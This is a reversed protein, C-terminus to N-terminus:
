AGTKPNPKQGASTNGGSQGAQKTNTYAISVNSVGGQDLKGNVAYQTGPVDSTGDHLVTSVTYGEQAAQVVSYVIGKDQTLSGALKLSQGHALTVALRGEADPRVLGNKGGEVTGNGSYSVTGTYPAGSQDKLQVTYRFALNRDAGSGAVQNSVTISGLEEDRANLVIDATFDQYNTSATKVQFRGVEGTKGAPISNVRIVLMDNLTQYSQVVHDPDNLTVTYEAAGLYYHEPLAEYLQTLDFTYTKPLENAVTLTGNKATAQLKTINVTLGSPAAPLIYNGAKDGTLQWTTITVPKNQGAAANQMTGVAQLHLVDGYVAGHAESLTYSEGLLQDHEVCKLQVSRANAGAYPRDVAAITGLSLQAPAVTLYATTTQQAHTDTEAVTITVVATGKNRIALNGSADTQVVSDNQVSLTIAGPNAVPTQGDSELITIGFADAGVPADGYTKSVNRNDLRIQPIDKAVIWVNVTGSQSAPTYNGTNLTFTWNVVYPGGAAQAALTDAAVPVGNYTWSMTGQALVDQPSTSVLANLKTLLDAEGERVTLTNTVAMTYSAPVIQFSKGVTGKDLLQGGAVPAVNATATGVHINNSYGTVTYDVANAYNATFDWMTRPNVSVAPTIPNGTYVQDQIDQIMDVTLPIRVQGTGLVRGAGQAQAPGGWLEVVGGDLWLENTNNLANAGEQLVVKSGEDVRVQGSNALSHGAAVTLSAPAGNRDNKVVRLTTGADVALDYDLVPNGWVQINAASDNVHVVGDSGVTATTEGGQYSVFIGNWNAYDAVHGIGQPAVIVANGDAGTAFTGNDSDGVGRGGGGISLADNGGVAYVVGGNVTVTGNYDVNEGSGIGAGSSLGANGGIARVWGGNITINGSAAGSGVKYGSGIGAGGGTGQAYVNGSNITIDGFDHGNEWATGEYAGGIGAAGTSSSGGHAYASLSGTGQITLSSGAEVWIAPHDGRGHLENEGELVLTVHAGNRVDLASATAGPTLLHCDRLIVTHTGGSIEIKHRNWAMTADCTGTIVHGPCGGTCDGAGFNVNGQAIDHTTEAFVAPGLCVLLMASLLMAAGNRLKHLHRNM